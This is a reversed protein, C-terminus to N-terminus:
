KISNINKKVQEKLENVTKFKKIGRLKKIIRVELEQGLIDGSFNKIHLELSPKENFTEKFGFHLLGQHTQNDIKTETLYVGHSIDLNQNDQQAKPM